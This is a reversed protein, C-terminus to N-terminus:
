TLEVSAATSTITIGSTVSRAMRTKQWKKHFNMEWLTNFASPRAVRSFVSCQFHAVRIRRIERVILTMKTM